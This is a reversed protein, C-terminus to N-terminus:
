DSKHDVKLIKQVDFAPQLKCSDIEPIAEGADVELFQWRIEVAILLFRADTSLRFYHTTRPDLKVKESISGFGMGATVPWKQKFEYEGAPLYFWTYTTGQLSAVKTGNILFDSKTLAAKSNEPRYIYVLADTPRPAPATQFSPGDVACGGILCVIVSILLSILCNKGM